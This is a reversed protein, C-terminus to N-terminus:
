LVPVTSDLFIEDTNKALHQLRRLSLPRVIREPTLDSFKEQLLTPNLSQGLLALGDRGPMAVVIQGQEPWDM